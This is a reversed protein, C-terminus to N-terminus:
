PVRSTRLVSSKILGGSVRGATTRELEPFLQDNTLSLVTLVMGWEERKETKKGEKIKTCWCTWKSSGGSGELILHREGRKDGQELDNFDRTLFIM